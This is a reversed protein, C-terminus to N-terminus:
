ILFSSGGLILNLFNGDVSQKADVSLPDPQSVVVDFCQEFENYGNVYFCVPYTGVGLNEIVTSFGYNSNLGYEQENIQVQYQLSENNFLYPGM